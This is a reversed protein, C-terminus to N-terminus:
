VLGLLALLARLAIPAAILAAGIALCFIIELITRMTETPLNKLQYLRNASEDPYRITENKGM